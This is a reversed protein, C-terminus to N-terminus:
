QKPDPYMTNLYYQRTARDYKFMVFLEGDKLPTDSTGLEPRDVDNLTQGRVHDQYHPGLASELPMRFKVAMQPAGPHNRNYELADNMKTAFSPDSQVSKLAHTMARDSTFQTAHEAARHDQGPREGNEKTQSIPDVKHMARDRLQGETVEPGHRDHAHGNAKLSDVTNKIENDSIALAQPTFKDNTPHVPKDGQPPYWERYAANPAHPDYGPPPGKPLETGYPSAALIERFRDLQKRQPATLTGNAEAAALDNVRQQAIARQAHALQDAEDANLTGGAATKSSLDQITRRADPVAPLPGRDRPAHRALTTNAKDLIGSEEQTLPGSDSQKKELHAKQAAALTNEAEHLQVAENFTNQRNPAGLKDIVQSAKRAPNLDTLLATAKGAVHGVAHLGLATAINEKGAQALNAFTADPNEVLTQVGGTGLNIAASKALAAASGKATAKGALVAAEAAAKGARLGRVM